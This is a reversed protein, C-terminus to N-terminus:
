IKGATDQLVKIAPLDAAKLTGNSLATANDLVTHAETQNKISSQMYHIDKPNLRCKSLGLLDIWTIPNPTYQYNSVGGLVGIPDLHSDPGEM